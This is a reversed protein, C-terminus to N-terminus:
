YATERENERTIHLKLLRIFEGLSGNANINFNFNQEAMVNRLADEITSLPAEVNTGSKQDGVWALFPNNPPLVRGEALAPIDNYLESADQWPSPEFSGTPNYNYRYGSSKSKAEKEFKTDYWYWIEEMKWVFDAIKDAVTQMANDIAKFVEVVFDGFGGFLDELGKLALDVDGTFVGKLFNSFGEFMLQLAEIAAETDGFFTILGAIEVCALLIAGGPTSAIKLIGSFLKFAGYVGGVVTILGGLIEAFDSINKKNDLVWQYLPSAEIRKKLNELETNFKSIGSSDFNGAANSSADIADKQEQLLDIEEQLKEILLENQEIQPNERLSNNLEDIKERIAAIKSEYAAISSSFDADKIADQAKQLMDIQEQIKESQAEYRESIAAKEEQLADISD